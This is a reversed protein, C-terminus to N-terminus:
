TRNVIVITGTRVDPYKFPQAFTISYDDSPVAKVLDNRESASIEGKIAILSGRLSVSHRFLSFFETLSCTARTIVADYIPSAETIYREARGCVLSCQSLNLENIIFDLFDCRKRRSEILDVSCSPFAIAIPIGPIGSGSGFDCMREIGTFDILSVTKLSDLIHYTVFRSLDNRSILNVRNNWDALVNFYREFHSVQKSDLSLGYFEAGEILVDSDFHPETM